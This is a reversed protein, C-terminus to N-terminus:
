IQRPCIQFKARSKQRRIQPLVLCTRATCILSASSVAALVTARSTRYPGRGAQRDGKRDVCVNVRLKRQRKKQKVHSATTNPEQQGELRLSWCRSRENRASAVGAPFIHLLRRRLPIISCGPMRLTFYTSRQLEVPIYRQHKQACFFFERDGRERESERGGGTIRLDPRTCCRGQFQLPSKEAPDM